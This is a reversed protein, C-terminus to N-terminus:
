GGAVMVQVKNNKNDKGNGVISGNSPDWQLSGTASSDNSCLFSWTGNVESLAYTGFCTSNDSPLKFDIRGTREQENFSLTGQMVGVNEWNLMFTREGSANNTPITVTVDEGFNGTGQEVIADTIQQISNSSYLSLNLSTQTGKQLGPIKLSDFVKGVIEDNINLSDNYSFFLMHYLTQNRTSGGWFGSGDSTKFSVYEYRAKSNKYTTPKSVNILNGLGLNDVKKSIYDRNLDVSIQDGAWVANGAIIKEFTYDLYYEDEWLEISKSQVGSSSAIWCKYPTAGSILVEISNTVNSCETEKWSAFSIIPTLLLFIFLVTFRKV